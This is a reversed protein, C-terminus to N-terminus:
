KQITSQDAQATGRRSGAVRASKKRKRGWDMEAKIKAQDEKKQQEMEPSLKEVMIENLKM